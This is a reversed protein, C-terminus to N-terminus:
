VLRWSVDAMFSDRDVIIIIFDNLSTSMLSVPLVTPETVLQSPTEPDPLPQKNDCGLHGGQFACEFVLESASHRQLLQSCVFWWTPKKWKHTKGCMTPVTRSFCFLSM